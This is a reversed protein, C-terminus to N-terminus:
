MRVGSCSKCPEGMAQSKLPQTFSKRVTQYLENNWITRLTSKFINGMEWRMDFVGCCVSVAGDWNIVTGWWPWDCPYRKLYKGRCSGNRDNQRYWPAIWKENEPLWEEMIKARTENEALRLNLSAPIFIAECSLSEALIRFDDIEHENYKTVVFFLKVVPTRSRLRHKAELIARIKELVLDLNKGPQYKEYTAQTVAHLSCNLMGLGSRVMSEADNADQHFAHLNSSIYTWIGADHAYRIMKYIDPSILPDGWNSLDAVYTHKKVTDIIDCFDNFAMKGKARGPLGMGTPCLRCTTNCINTPEIKIIYPLGTMQRRHFLLELNVLGMNWLKYTTLYRRNRWVHWVARVPWNAARYLTRGWGSSMDDAWRNMKGITRDLKERPNVQTM